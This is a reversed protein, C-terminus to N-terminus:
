QKKEEIGSNLEWMAKNIRNVVRAPASRVFAAAQEQNEFQKRGDETIVSAAIMYAILAVEDDKFAPDNMRAQFGAQEEGSLETILVEGGEMLEPIPVKKTRFTIRLESLNVLM